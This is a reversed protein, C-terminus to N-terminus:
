SKKAITYQGTRSQNKRKARATNTQVTFAQTTTYSGNPTTVTIPGTTAGSPVTAWIGQNSPVTFTTAPAGNFSVATAGLLVDGFLLISQGASGSTPNITGVHPLPKPLGLDMSFVTGGTYAGGNYSVGYIKGDTAQALICECAAVLPDFKYITKVQGTAPNLQFLSSHGYYNGRATGYLMGDSAELLTEPIGTL